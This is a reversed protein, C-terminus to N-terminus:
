KRSRRGGFLCELILGCLVLAALSCAAITLKGETTYWWNQGNGGGSNGSSGGTSTPTASQSVTGPSATVPSTPQAPTPVPVGPRSLAGALPSLKAFGVSPPDFRFVSYVSKLFTDGLIWSDGNDYLAGICMGSDDTGFAFDEPAIPWPQDSFTFSM